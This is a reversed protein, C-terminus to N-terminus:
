FQNSFSVLINWDLDTMQLNRCHLVTFVLIPLFLWAPYIQTLATKYRKTVFGWCYKEPPFVDIWMSAHRVGAFLVM